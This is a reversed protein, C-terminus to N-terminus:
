NLKNIIENVYKKAANYGNRYFEGEIKNANM